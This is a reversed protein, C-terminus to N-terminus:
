EVEVRLSRLTEEYGEIHEKMKQIILNEIDINLRPIRINEFDDRQIIKYLEGKTNMEIQRLIVPQKLLFLLYYPNIKRPIINFFADTTLMGETSKTILASIHGEKGTASGVKATVIEGEKVIYRMRNSLQGYVGKETTNMVSLGADINKLTFYNVEQDESIPPKIARKIEVLEGLNQWKIEKTDKSILRQLIGGGYAYFKVDLRKSDLLKEKVYFTGKPKDDIPDYDVIKKFENVCSRYIKNQQEQFDLRNKTTAGTIKIDNPILLNGIDKLSIRNLKGEMISQLQLQGLDSKLFNYIGLAYNEDSFRLRCIDCTIASEELERSVYVIQGSKGATTILIDGEIIYDKETLKDKSISKLNNIYINNNKVDGPSIINTGNKEVYEKIARTGDTISVSIDKLRKTNSGLSRKLEIKTITYQYSIKNGDLDTSPIFMTKM